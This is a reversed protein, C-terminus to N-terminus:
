ENATMPLNGKDGNDSNNETNIEHNEQRSAMWGIASGTSNRGM